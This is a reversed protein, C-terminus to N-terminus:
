GASSNKMPGHLIFAGCRYGRVTKASMVRSFAPGSAVRSNVYLFPPDIRLTDGPLGALRRVYRTDAEFGPIGATRFVVLDGRHPKVFNYSFKNVFVQDGTDIAGRAIIEGRHYIRGPFVNFDHSLTDPPAYVLYKQRQCILQSFPFFFLMPQIEFVQDDERSVVNIYKRGLVVFDAIQRSFDPAPGNRPHGITGNLTPQMAGTRIELPQAALCAASLFIVTADLLLVFVLVFGVFLAVTLRGPRFSDVLMALAAVGFLLAAALCIWTPVTTWIFLLALLVGVLYLSFFWVVGRRIRGARVLGFGPVFLSLLM